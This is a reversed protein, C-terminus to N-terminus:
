RARPENGLRRPPFAIAEQEAREKDPPLQYPGMETARAPHDKRLPHGVWSKPMLIRQLHPHGDFVIGFMDWVEREYWNAAPWIDVISPMSLRSEALAVKIRVYENRDFSLLHYVM